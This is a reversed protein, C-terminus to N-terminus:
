GQGSLLSPDFSVETDSAKATKATPVIFAVEAAVDAWYIIYKEGSYLGPCNESIRESGAEFFWSVCVKIEIKM